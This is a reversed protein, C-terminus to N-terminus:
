VPSSLANQRRAYGLVYAYTYLGGFVYGLVVTKFIEPTQAFVNVLWSGTFVLACSVLITLTQLQVQSWQKRTAVVRFLRYLSEILVSVTLTLVFSYAGQAFMVTIAIDHGFEVNIWYGWGGYFLFAFCASLLALM